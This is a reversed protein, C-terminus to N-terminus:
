LFLFMTQEHRGWLLFDYQLLVIYSILLVTWYESITYMLLAFRLSQIAAVSGTLKNPRHSRQIPGIAKVFLLSRRGHGKWSQTDNWLWWHMQRPSITRLHEFRTLVPMKNDGMVMFNSLHCQFVEEQKIYWKRTVLSNLNSNCDPFAWILDINAIKGGKQREKWANHM